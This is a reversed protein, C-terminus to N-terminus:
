RWNDQLYVIMVNSLPLNHDRKMKMDEKSIRWIKKDFDIDKWKAKIISGQRQATHITFILLYKTIINSYNLIDNYLKKINEKSTLTLNHRVDAQKKFAYLKLRGFLETDELM